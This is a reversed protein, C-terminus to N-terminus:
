VSPPRPGAPILCRPIWTPSLPTSEYWTAFTMKAEGREPAVSQAPYIGGESERHDEWIHGHEPGSVVLLVDIGCGMDGIRMAGDVPNGECTDVEPDWNDSLSFPRTLDHEEARRHDDFLRWM